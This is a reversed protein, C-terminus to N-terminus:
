ELYLSRLTKLGEDTVELEDRIYNMVSGHNKELTDFAAIINRRNTGFIPKLVEPPLKMMAAFPSEEMKKKEEESLDDKLKYAAMFDVVQESLAYDQIITEKEVGLATLILAAGLGTRDKGASCNFALPAQGGILRAFVTKFKEKHDYVMSRYGDAFSQAMFEGTLKSPDEFNKMFKQMMKSRGYDFSVYDIDGAQWTTPEEAREENSRFDCVVKIGLDSLYSYDGSTLGVMTGSRFIKGWKVTKGDTTKYGGMDRFNRGGELPLVRSAVKVKEGTESALIFYRRHHKGAAKWNFSTATVGSALTEGTMAAKDMTMEITVSSGFDRTWKIIYDHATEGHFVGITQAKVNVSKSQSKNIHQASVSQMPAALCVALIFLTLLQKM